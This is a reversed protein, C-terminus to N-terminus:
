MYKLLGIIKKVFVLDLTATERLQIYNGICNDLEGSTCLIIILIIM